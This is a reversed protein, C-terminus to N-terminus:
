KKTCTMDFLLMDKGDPGTGYMQITHTKDDKITLMHKQKAMKNAMPDWGEGLMTFVKGSPDVSGSLNMNGTSMNDIWSAWYKKQMNDYGMWGIGEFPPKDAPAKYEEVLVRGGMTWKREVSGKSETPTPGFFMKAAYNWSGVLPDLKKHEAGPMGMAAMPDMAGAAAKADKAAEPKKDAPPTEKKATDAPKKDDKKDQALAGATLFGLALVWATMRMWKNM